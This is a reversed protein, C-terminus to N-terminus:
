TYLIIEERYTHIQTHIYTHIHVFQLSGFSEGANLPPGMDQWRHTHIYTHIYTHGMDQWELSGGEADTHIYTHIYTRTYTHICAHMCAHM